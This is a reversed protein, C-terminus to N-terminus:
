GLLNEQTQRISKHLQVLSTVYSPEGGSEDELLLLKILRHQKSCYPLIKLNMFPSGRHLARVCEIINLLNKGTETEKSIELTNATQDDLLLDHGFLEQLLAWKVHPGFYLVLKNGDDILYMGDSFIHSISSPMSKCAFKWGGLPVSGHSDYLSRHLCYCRAYVYTTESVSALLTGLMKQLFEFGQDGGAYMKFLANLSAPLLKLNDPLILQNEPTSPACLRRYSCLAGVVETLIAKKSNVGSKIMHYAMRRAYLNVLVKYNASKFITTVNTSVKMSQTHVRILKKGTVSCNYMCAVQVYLDRKDNILEDLSMVFCIATDPSLRPIRLATKDIIARTSHFPSYNEKISMPKSTRIKLECNYAHRVTFLRVFNNMIKTGDVEAKFSSFYCSKGATQQSLYQVQVDGPIRERQACIYVDVAIGHDYCDQTLGDYLLKMSEDLVFENNIEPKICRGVGVEPPQAYFMCVTGPLKADSLLSVAVSLAANGCSLSGTPKMCTKAIFDIYKYIPTMDNGDFEMFLEEACGPSFAGDVETMINVSYKENRCDYLYIVRDFTIVCFRVSTQKNKCEELAAVLANLVCKRLAMSNSLATSEVVIIYVPKKQYDDEISSSPVSFRMSPVYSSARRMIPVDTSEMRSLPTTSESASVSPTAMGNVGYTSYAVYSQESNNRSIIPISSSLATARRFVNTIQESISENEQAVPAYYRLPAVFDVSGRMIPPVKVKGGVKSKLSALGLLEPQTLTFGKYCFNCIRYNLRSDGEMAPNIYAMCKPCRILNQKSHDQEGIATVLDVVPVKTKFEEAFPQVVAALPLNIRNLTDGYLPIEALSMTIYKEHCVGLNVAKQEIFSAVPSTVKSDGYNDTNIVNVKPRPVQNNDIKNPTYPGYSFVLKELDRDIYYSDPSNLDLPEDDDSEIDSVIADLSKSDTGDNGGDLVRTSEDFQPLITQSSHHKRTVMSRSLKPGGDNNNGTQPKSPFPEDNHHPAQLYHRSVLQSPVTADGQPPSPIFFKQNQDM